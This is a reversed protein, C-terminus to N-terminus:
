KGLFRLNWERAYGGFGFELYKKLARVQNLSATADGNNFGPGGLIRIGERIVGVVNGGENQEHAIIADFAEDMTLNALPCHYGDNFGIVIHGHSQWPRYTDLNESRLGSNSIWYDTKISAIKTWVNCRELDNLAGNNALGSLMAGFENFDVRRPAYQDMLGTAMQDLEAQRVSNVGHFPNFPLIRAM